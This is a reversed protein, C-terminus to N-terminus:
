IKKDGLVSSCVNSDLPNAALPLDRNIWCVKQVIVEGTSLSLATQGVSDLPEGSLEVRFPCDNHIAFYYEGPELAGVAVGPTNLRQVNTSPYAVRKGFSLTLEPFKPGCPLVTRISEWSKLFLAQKLEGELQERGDSESELRAQLDAIQRDLEAIRKEAAAQFEADISVDRVTAAKDSKIHGCSSSLTLLLLWSKRM